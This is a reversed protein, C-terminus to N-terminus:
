EVDVGVYMPSWILVMFLLIYYSNWQYHDHTGHLKARNNVIDRTYTM